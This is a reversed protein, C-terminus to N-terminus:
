KSVKKKFITNMIRKTNKIKKKKFLNDEKWDSLIELDSKM